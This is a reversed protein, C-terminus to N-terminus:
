SESGTLPQTKWRRHMWVWQEPHMRIASELKATLEATFDTIAQQRDEGEPPAMRELRVQHRGNIRHIWIVIVPCGVRLALSAAASPTYAPRGFFPVHTGQVRTDQDILMALIGNNKFIRLMEKSVGADGRWLVKLGLQTRERHAWRTLRPDYIPKAITSLPLDYRCLIQALAEWNGIHGGIALAGKGEALADRFVQLDEDSIDVKHFVLRKMHVVELACRALHKFMQRVLKKIESASKEPLSLQAQELARRRDSVAFAHALAGLPSALTELLPAPICKM